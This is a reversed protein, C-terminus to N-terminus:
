CHLAGDSTLTAPTGVWEGLTMAAALDRESSTAWARRGDALLVAANVIEPIGERDHMVSYAEIRAPGVAQAADAVARRPLSDVMKQPSGHRFGSAPPTMAYIGFSHKTAYGGNAWVLATQQPAARLDRMVAGIAHMVYNNWPGGNFSLGGTRTLQSNISLGLSAAGLQVASPFCSYLDIIDIEGITKNALHLAMEGGLRVAPTEAFTDRHSVFNHEHCDTGSHLFVWKDQSIGLTQAREVSCIILAAGMDVDNNSNMLKTYPFGIMRNTPSPTIIESASYERRIWATPNTAAVKSFRSWLEGIHRQHEDVGRGSAARIATEFMPYIQIPMGIKRDIEIAHNMLLDEGISEPTTDSSAGVPWSLDIGNRRARNRSRTAEGGTIIAIDMEGAAIQRAAHNVLSQPMNGGHPTLGLRLSSIGLLQAVALAPNAHKTSLSRVAFIADADPLERLAADSIAATVAAAMLGIPDVATALNDTLQLVQGQGVLIPTRPDLTMAGLM